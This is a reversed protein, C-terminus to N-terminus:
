ENLRTERRKDRTRLAGWPHAATRGRGGAAHPLRLPSPGRVPRTGEGAERPSSTIVSLLLLAPFAIIVVVIILVALLLLLHFRPFHSVQWRCNYAFKKMEDDHNVNDSM